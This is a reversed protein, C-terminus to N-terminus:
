SHSRGVTGIDSRIQLRNSVQFEFVLITDDIRLVQENVPEVNIGVTGLFREVGIFHGDTLFQMEERFPRRSYNLFVFDGVLLAFFFITLDNRHRGGKLHSLLGLAIRQFRGGLGECGQGPIFQCVEGIARTTLQPQRMCIGVGDDHLRVVLVVDEREVVNCFLLSRIFDTIQISCRVLRHQIFVAIFNLATVGIVSIRNNRFTEPIKLTIDGICEMLTQNKRSIIFFIHNGEVVGLIFRDAATVDAAASAAAFVGSLAAGTVQNDMMILFQVALPIVLDLFLTNAVNTFSHRYVLLLAGTEGEVYLLCFLLVISLKASVSRISIHFLFIIQPRNGTHNGGTFIFVSVFGQLQMQVIGTLENLIRNAVNVPICLLSDRIRFSFCCREIGSNHFNRSRNGTVIKVISIFIAILCRFQFDAPVFLGIHKGEVVDFLLDFDLVNRDTGICTDGAAEASDGVGQIVVRHCRFAGTGRGCASEIEQTPIGAPIRFITLLNSDIFLQM